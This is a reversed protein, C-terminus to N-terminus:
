ENRNNRIPTRSLSNLNCNFLLPKIRLDRAVLAGSEFYIWPARVNEKTICIIGMDCKKLEGKLRNWWDEGSVINEDSFFCQLATNAFIEKELTKKLEKAINKSLDGSWMIFIKKQLSPTATQLHQINAQGNRTKNNRKSIKRHKTM